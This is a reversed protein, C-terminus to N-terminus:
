GETIRTSALGEMALSCGRPEAEPTRGLLQLGGARLRGLDETLISSVSYLNALDHHCLLGPQGLAVPELTEPHLVRTRLWPPGALPPREEPAETEMRLVPEYYQSLMETMGYENVIRGPSIGLSREMQRYLWSRSVERSRGKFGGTEMIRSGPPLSFRTEGGEWRRDRGAARTGEMGDLLHVFAFASGALLVPVGDAEARAAGELFGDLDLRWEGDVFWGGKGDGWAEAFGQIMWALSSDPRAGAPPVLALVRLTRGEPNLYAEGSALLSCRYLELDRVHHTGRQTESGTTGSTRFTAAAAEPDGAVLTMEKFARAPVPPIERWDTVDDPTLGHFRVLAGYPRVARAQFRFVEVALENFAQDSWASRAGEATAMTAEMAELLRDRLRLGEEELGSSLPETV